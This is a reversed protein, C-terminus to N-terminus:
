KGDGRILRRAGWDAQTGSRTLDYSTSPKFFNEGSLVANNLNYRTLGDHSDVTFTPRNTNGILDPDTLRVSGTFQARESTIAGGATVVAVNASTSEDAVNFGAEAQVAFSPPQPDRQRGIAMVPTRKLNAYPQDPNQPKTTDFLAENAYTATSAGQPFATTTTRQVAPEANTGKLVYGRVQSDGTNRVEGTLQVASDQGTRVVASGGANVFDLDWATLTPARVEGLKSRDSHRLPETLQSGVPGTAAASPLENLGKAMPVSANNNVKNIAM